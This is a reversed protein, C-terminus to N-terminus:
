LSALYDGYGEETMKDKPIFKLAVGNMCYRMGGRDRPGDPFVHGLHDDAIASRVETRTTFFTNDPRETVADPEIPKVFSPWGTGSDFKDRSSFLPEGSLVDVYIGPEFTHDLPSSGSRETGEEQTVKYVLPDLEAKLTVADPKVYNKWMPTTSTATNSTTNMVDVPGDVKRWPLTPGTDTGWVSKIFADRGSANRYYAYKYQTLAGKYYDQHYAEAPYFQSDPEVDIALPQKYPGNKTVDAILNTIIKKESENAYFFAPAYQDGRDHFSGHDDTPDMHKMAYVLIQEFSVKSTDYTVEVAERYGNEAYNQYTPNPVTGGVYGSVVSTVGPLKELDAETCWFCGGAVYMKAFHEPLVAPQTDANSTSAIVVGERKEVASVADKAAQIAALPSGQGIGAPASQEPKYHQYVTYGGVMLAVLLAIYTM